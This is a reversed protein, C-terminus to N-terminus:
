PAQGPTGPGFKITTSWKGYFTRDQLVITRVKVHDGESDFFFFASPWTTSRFAKVGSKGSFGEPDLRDGYRLGHIPKNWRRRISVYGLGKTPHFQLYLGLADYNLVRIVPPYKDGDLFDEEPSGLLNQVAQPSLGPRLEGEVDRLPATIEDERDAPSMECGSSLFLVAMFAGAASMSVVRKWEM